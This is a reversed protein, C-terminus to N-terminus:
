QALEAGHMPPHEGAQRHDHTLPQRQEGGVDLREKARPDIQVFIASTTTSSTLPSRHHRAGLRRQPLVRALCRRVPARQM